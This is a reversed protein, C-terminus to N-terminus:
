IWRRVRACYDAYIEGHMQSLHAEELRVQAQMLVEGVAAIALTLANPRLLFLGLLNVRMALFIPNRSLKFLGTSVLGTSNASDIGIRWSNGMHAQALLLWALSALLLAWGLASVAGSQLWHMPGLAALARPFFADLLAILVVALMVGRFARGIYGYATDQAPLVVPNYGSRRYVLWSRWVFALAFYLVFYLLLYM